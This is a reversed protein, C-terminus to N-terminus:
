EIEKMAEAFADGKRKQFIAIILSFILASFGAGLSGSFIYIVPNTTLSFMESMQAVEDEKFGMELYAEEMQVIMENLYEPNIVKLYLFLYAGVIIGAFIGMRTGVWVGQGYSLFGKQYEDRYRAMSKYIFGAYVVWTLINHIFSDMQGILHVLFYVAVLALGMFTGQNLVFRSKHKNM